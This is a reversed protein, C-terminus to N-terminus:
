LQSLQRGTHKRVVYGALFMSGRFHAASRWVLEREKLIDKKKACGEQFKKWSM